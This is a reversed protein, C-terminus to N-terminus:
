KSYIYETNTTLQNNKDYELEKLVNGFNDYIFTSISFVEDNPLFSIFKILKNDKNYISIYDRQM